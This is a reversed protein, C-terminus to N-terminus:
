HTHDHGTGEDDCCTDGMAVLGDGAEVLRLHGGYAELLRDTTFVEHPLGFGVMRRNILMVKNFSDAALNLDHTSALITVGRKQMEDLINLIDKQSKIDLGTFPEDMLMLEAEQALARAIFMRQQQGGSLESIQRQALAGLGVVQLAQRVIEWDKKKPWHLLGLQGIRGMMVVDAVSVPFQWDVHSRQPVYAICIHGDPGNGYINVKGQHPTLVGAIVKFLTSKGAGNPGVVAVREGTNLRFSFEELAIVKDYRVTLDTVDLIPTGPKHDAHIGAFPQKRIERIINM